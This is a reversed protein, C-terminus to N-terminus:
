SPDGGCSTKYARNMDGNEEAREGALAGGRVSGPRQGASRRESITTSTRPGTRASVAPIRPSDLSPQASGIGGLVTLVTLM